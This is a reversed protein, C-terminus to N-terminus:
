YSEEGEMVQVKLRMILVSSEVNEKRSRTFNCRVRSIGQLPILCPTSAFCENDEM